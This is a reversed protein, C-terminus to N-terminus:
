EIDKIKLNEWAEEDSLEIGTKTRILFYVGPLKYQRNVFLDFYEETQEKKGIYYLRRNEDAVIYINIDEM